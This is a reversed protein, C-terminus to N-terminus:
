KLFKNNGTGNYTCLIGGTKCLDYNSNQPKKQQAKHCTTCNDRNRSSIQAEELPLM